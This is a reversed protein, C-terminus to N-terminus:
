PQASLSREFPLFREAVDQADNVPYGAVEVWAHARLQGNELQVGLLLDGLIGRRRLLWQLYLSRTLCNDAPLVFHAVSNVLRGMHAAADLSAADGQLRMAGDAHHQGLSCRGLLKM